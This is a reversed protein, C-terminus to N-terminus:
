KPKCATILFFPMELDISQIKISEFGTAELQQQYILPVRFSRFLLFMPLLSYKLPKEQTLIQGREFILLTGGPKLSQYARAIFQNTAEEPWDHLFSKFSILDLEPPLPDALANGKIFKIRNIEPQTQLYAQGLDCVLPIDMITAQIHPYKQCIQLVFEGSNGGIDLIQQYPSFDHYHLCLPAEYKTLTTTIHMWRRTLEYNDATPEFCRNYNFLDYLSSQRQFELPNTLLMTLRNALDVAVWNAFELKVKLLDHYKLALLFQDTLSIQSHQSQIVQYTKLLDLIVDLGFDDCKRTQQLDERTCFQHTQFYSILGIEFASKLVQAKTFTDIFKDVCLYETLQNLNTEM